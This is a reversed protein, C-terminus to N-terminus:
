EILLTTDDITELLYDELNEESFLSTELVLEELDEEPLYSALEYSSMGSAQEDLYTEIDTLSINEFDNQKESSFTLVIAICAAISATFLFAKRRYLPIVKVTEETPLQGMIQEEVKEFYDQPVSFGAKKPLEELNLADFLRDDFNEFYDKPTTFGPKYKNEKKM